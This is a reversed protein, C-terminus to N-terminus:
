SEFSLVENEPLRNARLFLPHCHGCKEQGEDRRHGEGDSEGPQGHAHEDSPHRRVDAAENPSLPIPPADRAARRISPV